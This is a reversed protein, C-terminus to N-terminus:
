PQNKQKVVNLLFTRFNVHSVSELLFSGLNDVDYKFDGKPAKKPNFYVDDDRPVSSFISEIQTWTDATADLTVSARFPSMDKRKVLIAATMSSVVGNKRSKNEFFGWSATNKPGWNRERLEVRGKVTTADWTEAEITKELKFNLEAKLGGAEGGATGGGEKTSTEKQTTPAVCFFGDPAIALVEPDARPNGKAKAAFKVVVHAEKIRRALGNPDFRFELVVLSYYAGGGDKQRGHVVGKCECGIDVRGRREIINDRQEPDLMDMDPSNQTRFDAGPDGQPFIGVDFSPLDEASLQNDEDAMVDFHSSAM